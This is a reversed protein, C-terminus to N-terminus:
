DFYCRLNNENNFYEVYINKTVYDSLDKYFNYFGPIIFKFSFKPQYDIKSIDLEDLFKDELQIIINNDILDNNTKKLEVLTTLFNNDELGIFIHFLYKDFIQEKIYDLLCSIIDVSNKNINKFVIELLSKCNGQADKDNKIFEFAKDIIKKKLDDETDMYKIIEDIYNEENLSGIEEEQNYSYIKKGILDKYVFRTLARKFERNLDILKEDNMIDIINKELFEHFIIDKSNLNDLFIQNINPNIDPISYIRKNIKPNFNRKIHIILIYNYKDKRFNKILFNCIFQIKYSNTHEFHILIFKNKENVNMNKIEDIINFLQNESKIESIIFSMKNNSGIIINTEINKENKKDINRNYFDENKKDINMKYFNEILKQCLNKKEYINIFLSMLFDFGKEKSYLKIADEYLIDVKDEEKNQRLAELFFELKQFYNLFKQEVM